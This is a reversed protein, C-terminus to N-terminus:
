TVASIHVTPLSLLVLCSSVTHRAAGGASLGLTLVGRVRGGGPGGGWWPRTETQWMAAGRDGVMSLHYFGRLYTYAIAGM